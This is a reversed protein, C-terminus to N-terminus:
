ASIYGHIIRSAVIVLTYHVDFDFSSSDKTFIIFGTHTSFSFVFM